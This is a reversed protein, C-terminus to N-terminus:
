GARRNEALREIARREAAVDRPRGRRQPPHWRASAQVGRGQPQAAVDSAAVGHSGAPPVSRRITEPSGIVSVPVFIVREAPHHRALSMAHRFAQPARRGHGRQGQPAVGDDPLESAM